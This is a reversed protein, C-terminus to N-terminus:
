MVEGTEANFCEGNENIAKIKLNGDTTNFVFYQFDDNKCEEIFLKQETYDLDQYGDIFIVKWKKATARVLTMIFKIREGSSLSSVPRTNILVNGEESITLNEIPMEAVTLLQKPLNRILEINTTLKKSESKKTTLEKESNQLEDYIPVLKKMEEIKKFEKEILEIEKKPNDELFKESEKGKNKVNEIKILCAAKKEKIIEKKSNIKDQLRQIEFEISQIESDIETQIVKIEQAQKNIYLEANTRGENIINIKKIEEYKEIASANRWKDIDFNEPLKNEANRVQQEYVKVDRNTETRRDFLLNEINNCVKLGHENYNIDIKENILSEVTESSITIPTLSLVLESLEKEKMKILSIPNLQGDSVFSKLFSEKNSPSMGDRDINVTTPKDNKNFRKIITTNDDFLLYAEAKDGDSHVFPLRESKNTLTRQIAELVSSKGAGNKGEFVTIKGATFELEEIGLCNKFKLKHVKM